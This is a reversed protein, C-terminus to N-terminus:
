VWNVAPLHQPLYMEPLHGPRQDKWLMQQEQRRKRLLRHQRHRLLQLTPLLEDPGPEQFVAPHKRGEGPASVGLGEAKEHLLTLLCRAKANKEAAPLQVPREM